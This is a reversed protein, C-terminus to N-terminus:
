LSGCRSKPFILIFTDRAKFLRSATPSHAGATQTLLDLLFGVMFGIFIFGFQDQTLRYVILIILYVAPNSFGFLNVQDFILIQFLMLIFALTFFRSYYQIM